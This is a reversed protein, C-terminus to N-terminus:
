NCCLKNYGTLGPVSAQNLGYIAKNLKCVLSKGSAEFGQPQVYVEEELLGNLFANNVDLQLLEWHFTLALTLILRITIRKIVLSFTVNFDFGQYQNPLLDHRISTSLGMLIKKSGSFGIAVKNPLLPVLTWTKNRRELAAFKDKMAAYWRRDQLALKM